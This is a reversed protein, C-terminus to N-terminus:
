NHVFLCGKVPVFNKVGYKDAIDRFYFFDSSHSEVDRWGILTAAERRIMVNGCDIYGQQMKCNIIGWGTYSHIMQDCYVAVANPHKSFGQLLHECFTPAYHNDANTIVVYDSEKSLRKAKLENLAWQRWYHGWGQKREPTELYLIRSDDAAEVIKKIDKKAPGDHILILEWNQHTQNILSSLIEPYSEYILCIFTVKSESQEKFPFTKYHESKRHAQRKRGMDWLPSKNIDKTVQAATLGWRKIQDLFINNGRHEFQFCDEKTVVPDCPFELRLSLEKKLAFGTTRIHHKARVQVTNQTPCIEMAAVDVGNKLQDTFRVIFHKDMPLTDDTVWILNNWDNPFGELRERCVDQFCGIDYGINERSIIRISHEACYGIFADREAENIYNHIIILESHSTDSDKWNRIWEKVNSFRDFVVVAVITDIHGMM